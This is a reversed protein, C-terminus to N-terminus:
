FRGKIRRLLCGKGNKAISKLLQHEANYLDRLENTYLKQLTDLKM